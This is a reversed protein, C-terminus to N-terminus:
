KEVELLFPAFSVPNIGTEIHKKFDRTIQLAIEHKPEVLLLRKAQLYYNAEFEDIAIGADKARKIVIDIDSV